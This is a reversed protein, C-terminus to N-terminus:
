RRVRKTLIRMVHRPDVVRITEPSVGPLPQSWDNAEAFRYHHLALRCYEVASSPGIAILRLLDDGDAPLIIPCSPYDEGPRPASDYTMPNDGKILPFVVWADLWGVRCLALTAVPYL